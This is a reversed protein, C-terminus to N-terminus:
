REVPEAAIRGAAYDARLQNKDIKGSAALPMAPIRAIREPIWWDAVEGRLARVLREPDLHKGQRPEVILVPREGWRDDPAGIVAVQGVAPDRGAIAEIEVPNIWEGGSKILDKARGRIALNGEEDISALDGTDFWGEADLADEDDGFYRDAVSAGRAQLRGVPGRQQDLAAGKADVLRLDLGIPVAGATDDARGADYPPAITGLPSLETMGWSTQVRAGLREEMRRVQAEPCPSGGILIRELDPLDGGVADLHDVLGLWVTQVGIGITVREESMVRALSEGDLHRGPLVLTAGAAPAAFPIGWGNAHFM